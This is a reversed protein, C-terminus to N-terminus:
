DKSYHIDAIQPMFNNNHFGYEHKETYIILYILFGTIVAYSTISKVLWCERDYFIYSM